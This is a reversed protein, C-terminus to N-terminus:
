PYRSIFSETEVGLEPPEELATELTSTVASSGARCPSPPLATVTLPASQRTLPEGLVFQDDEVGQKCLGLRGRRSTERASAVPM